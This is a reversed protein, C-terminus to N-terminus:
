KIAGLVKLVDYVIKARRYGRPVVEGKPIAQLVLDTYSAGSLLGARGLGIAPSIAEGIATGYAFPKGEIMSKVIDAAKPTLTAIVLSVGLFAFGIIGSGILPPNWIEGPLVVDNGFNLGFLRAIFSIADFVFNDEIIGKLSIKISLIEFEIALFMLIATTPYVALNAVIDNIFGFPSENKDFLSLMIKLPSFIIVLFLQATTKFIMWMIRLTTIIFVILLVIVGIIILLIVIPSMIIGSVVNLINSTAWFFFGAISALLFLFIYMLFVLFIGPGSGQFIEWIFTFSRNPFLIKVAIAYVLYMLDVLFGAIAYSFTVLIITLLLKPLFSQITVVAQPSIKVRFMILFAAIITALILLLYTGDRISKWMTQVVGMANYGYGTQAKAEQVVSFNRISKKIYSIGSLPKEELMFETFTKNKKNEQLAIYKDTKSQSILNRLATVLQSSDGSFAAALLRDAGRFPFFILSYIIWQVQAATYREGFIETPNTDDYVKLFWDRPDQKYWVSDYAKVTGASINLLILFLFFSTILKKLIKKM